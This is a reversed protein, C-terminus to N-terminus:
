AVKRKLRWHSEKIKVRALVRMMAPPWLRVPRLLRLILTQQRAIIADEKIAMGAENVKTLRFVAFLGFVFSFVFFFDWHRLHLLLISVPAGNFHTQFTWSIDTDTFWFALWGSLLPAIGSAVASTFSLLSLYAVSNKKPALKLGMSSAALSTGATAIGMLVHILILLPLTFAYKGPMTTYVWSLICCLYLPACITLVAKNGYQDTYKGWLRFFIVNAIQTLTTLGIVAPLSLALIKLMYMSAFPVSLNIAFNWSAMYVMLNRFNRHRLPKKILRFWLQTASPMTPEPTKSLLYSGTLGCVAGKFFLIGYCYMELGEYQQLVQHMFFACGIGLVVSVIQCLLLRKSFFSGLQNQPIIDQMWSSWAGTSIAGMGHQVCLALMLIIVGETTIDLFPLLAILLYVARGMATCVVVVKKRSGFKQVFYVSAIQLINAFLPIATIVGIQFSTAGMKLAYAILFTGSTLVGMAQTVLGERLVIKLDESNVTKDQVITPQM